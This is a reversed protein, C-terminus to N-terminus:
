TITCKEDSASTYEKEAITTTTVKKPTIKYINTRDETWEPDLQAKPVQLHHTTTLVGSNVYLLVFSLHSLPRSSLHTVWEVNFHPSCLKLFIEDHRQSRSLYSLYIVTHEGKRHTLTFAVMDCFIWYLLGNMGSLLQLSSILPEFLEERYVVDSAVIFDYPPSLENPNKPKNFVVFNTVFHRSRCLLMEFLRFDAM